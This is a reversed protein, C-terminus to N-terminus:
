LEASDSAGATASRGRAGRVSAAVLRVAAVVGLVLCLAAIVLSANGILSPAVLHTEEGGFVSKYTCNIGVPVYSPAKRLYDGTGPNGTGECSDATDGATLAYADFVASAVLFAAVSFSVAITIWESTRKM